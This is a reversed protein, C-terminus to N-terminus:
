SSVPLISELIRIPAKEGPRPEVMVEIKLRDPKMGWRNVKKMYLRLLATPDLIIVKRENAGVRPVRKQEIMFPIAWASKGNGNDSALRATISYRLLVGEISKSGRNVLTLKARLIARKGAMLPGVIKLTKIDHYVRRVEGKKRASTEWVIKELAIEAHATSGLALGLALGLLLGARKSTM